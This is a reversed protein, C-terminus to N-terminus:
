RGSPAALVIEAARAERQRIDQQVAPEIEAARDALRQIRGIGIEDAHNARTASRGETFAYRARTDRVATLAEERAARLRVVIKGFRRIPIVAERSAFLVQLQSSTHVEDDRADVCDAECCPLTLKAGRGELSSLRM